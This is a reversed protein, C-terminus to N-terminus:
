RQHWRPQESRYCDNSRARSLMENYNAHAAMALKKVAELQLLILSTHGNARRLRL